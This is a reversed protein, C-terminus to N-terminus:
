SIGWHPSRSSYIWSWHFSSMPRCIRHTWIPGYRSRAAYRITWNLRNVFDIFLEEVAAKTHALVIAGELNDHALAYTGFDFMLRKWDSEAHTVHLQPYKRKRSGILQRYELQKPHAYGLSATAVSNKICPYVYSKYALRMTLRRWEGRQLTGTLMLVSIRLCRCLCLIKNVLHGRGGDFMMHGEDIVVVKCARGLTRSGQLDEGHVQRM